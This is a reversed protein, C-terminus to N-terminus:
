QKIPNLNVIKPEGTQMNMLIEQSEGAKIEIDLLYKKNLKSSIFELTHKGEQVDLIRIPPVEGILKGDLLVDAYPYVKVRIKEAQLKRLDYTKDMDSNVQISEEIIRYGEKEIKFKHLGSPVSKKIPSLGVEQDDIFVSAESPNTTISLRLFVSKLSREWFNLGPKLILPEDIGAWETGKDLRVQCTSTALEVNLPTKGKYVGDIRVDAGEPTTKIELIYAPTLPYNKSTTEGATVKIRDAIDRYEPSKKLQITYTGPAYRLKFPTLGKRQNSLYVQAGQPISNIDLFGYQSALTYNKSAMEGAKVSLMDTIEGFETGKKILLPVTGPDHKVKLPTVGQLKDDLYVQAGSPTSNIEIEGQSPPPPAAPAAQRSKLAAQKTVVAPKEQKLDKKPPIFLGRFLYGAVALAIVGSTIGIILPAIRRKRRIKVITRPRPLPRAPTPLDREVKDLEVIIEGTEQYRKRKDKELCKLILRNLQEPIQPNISKPNPPLETKHKLAVGFPTNSEFPVRGTVMEFLVVGLSYIDSRYDVDSGEVQEPSMYEPTGVMGDPDTLGRTEPSRAIGFDMIKANGEKDIMINRPKLDRHVIGLKHAESLGACLQKAILVTQVASLHGMMRIMSRLDEGPVYEMTIFYTDEFKSLDHVRCVNKHSIQRAIKLEHRFRTITKESAAIEPNILKLAIKVEVEKDLVKYVKGMGGKGLEEIVLYRGAFTSGIPLERQAEHLTM